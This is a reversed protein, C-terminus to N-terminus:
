YVICSKHMRISRIIFLSLSATENCLDAVVYFFLAIDLLSLRSSIACDIQAVYSMLNFVYQNYACIDTMICVVFLLDLVQDDPVKYLLHLKM